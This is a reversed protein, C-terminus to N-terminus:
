NNTKYLFVKQCRENDFCVICPKRDYPYYEMRLPVIQLQTLLQENSQVEELKIITEPENDEQHYGLISYNEDELFQLLEL